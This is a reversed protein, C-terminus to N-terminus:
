ETTQLYAILNARDEADKLGSFSMKTGPAWEKPRHLFESLAEPTWDGEKNALADSYGFGDVAAIERGVIGNLHPGTGDSGDLKHCARCKSWVREGKDPDAQALLEEFPVEEEAAEAEGGDEEIEVAYAYEHEDGHGGSGHFVLESFFGVGLYVLLAGVVAGFIKNFEMSDM